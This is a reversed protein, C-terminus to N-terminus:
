CHSYILIIGVLLIIFRTALSSVICCWRVFFSEQVNFTFILSWSTGQLISDRMVLGKKYRCQICLPRQLCPLSLEQDKLMAMVWLQVDNYWPESCQWQEHTYMTYMPGEFAPFSGPEQTNDNSNLICQHVCPRRLSSLIWTRSYQWQEHICGHVIPESAPYYVNTYLTPPNVMSTSAVNIYM